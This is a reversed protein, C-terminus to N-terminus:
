WGRDIPRGHRVDQIAEVRDSIGAAKCLAAVFVLALVWVAIGVALWIM